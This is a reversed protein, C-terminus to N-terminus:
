SAALQPEGAATATEGLEARVQRALAEAGMREYIALAERAAAHAEAHEPGLVRATLRLVYALDFTDDLARLTRASERLSPIASGPDGELGNLAAMAANHTAVSGPGGRTLTRSRELWTRAQDVDGALLALLAGLSLQPASSEPRYEVAAVQLRAAQGHEGRAMEGLSDILHLERRDQPDDAVEKAAIVEQHDSPLEMLQEMAVKYRILRKRDASTMEGDLVSILQGLVPQLPRGCFLTGWTLNGMLWLEYGRDGVQRALGIAEDVYATAAEVSQYQAIGEGINAMGRLASHIRGDRRAMDIGERMVAIAEYNRGSMMLATGRTMLVESAVERLDHAEAIVMAQEAVELSRQPELNRYYARALEALVSARVQPEMEETLENVAQKLEEIAEAPSYLQIVGQAVLVRARAVGAADGISAYLDRAERARDAVEEYRAAQVLEASARELLAARDAESGSVDLAQQYFDAAQAHGGLASAREAAGLLALRAQVAVADSEPGPPSARHAATYHGALVGAIEDSGLSEFYRAAALHRARREPRALTSYAVERTLSQMFAYQGREPSRPDAEMTLIERHVLQHLRGPLEAGEAGHVAELAQLSFSQGLVSADQVLRRDEPLLGDLRSTILSRLSDPVELDGLEGTPRLRGDVEELRGDAVLMRVTEVAYLPIGDSRAVITSRASEPLGPVLAALMEHMASEPLPDLALATYTRRGAGWGPRRDFLEPRALTVVLLPVSKSWDLLHDIFDLLGDDAWHLDEIVLATTGRSCINEFFRRWAPFLSDRGGQAQQEVGLLVLLAREIWEHESADAVYETVTERIRQRTTQEDDGESLRARGRVMEGLAWFSVGEGYAPCRGRHWYIPEVVGDVYKELEWALRSKGIGAPGTISVLRVRPDRGSLHLQDRLLRFEEDRGVFPTELSASRGAGGRQAVVSRARWAPVPAQKGKLEQEGAPEFTIAASAARMTSEGVLVSAPPAVSQLRAATNVLDGALFGQDTAALNVAAEGTLVGARAQIGAGLTGVVDVLELAARVAREADDEHAVPTGWVAMVADGIFKEITGGYRTVTERALESYRELTARVEEPDREEAFPTFGVLDAFLVTVLRREASRGSPATGHAPQPPQAAQAPSALAPSALTTGGESAPGHAGGLANGCNGCFRAEAENEAGCNPCSTGLASGCSLCFRRGARNETGCSACIV